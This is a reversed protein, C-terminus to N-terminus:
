GAVAQMYLHLVRRVSEEWSFRQVQQYGLNILRQRLADDLLVQRIGRSIDFVNEPNVLVAANSTVETLASVNSAVVPTGHAMAELPPLGFGEYLSPFVFAAARSYFAKLTPPPVFGLFRVDAQTRSKIVARRLQPHKSLEDGIIFLRLNRYYPHQRLEDKLVAFAEILRPLNKHPKINGAYLLFPLEAQYRALTRKIEEPEISQTFREDLANYIVDTKNAPIGFTRQLDRQTARSVCVVRQARQLSRRMRYFQWASQLPHRDRVPTLFDVIDHVTLLYPCPLLWPAALYPIHCLQIHHKRLRWGLRWEYRFRGDSHEYDLLAFREPLPAVESWDAPTGILWYHNSTDLRALQMVLNRTYTGAGYDQIRRIDLAINM